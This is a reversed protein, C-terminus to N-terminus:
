EKSTKDSEKKYLDPYTERMILEKINKHDPNTLYTIASDTNTGLIVDDAYILTGGRKIVIGKGIADILLLRVSTTTGTYLDIIKEPYREAQTLLYDEIDSVAAHSMDKELLKCKTLWGDITDGFIYTQADHIKKKRDNKTKSIVGPHEIYLDAVGRRGSVLGEVTGSSVFPTEGDIIYNGKSDKAFRDPAIFSSYEIAEWTAKDKPNSLDFTQGHEVKIVKSAPILYGGNSLFTKDKESLIMQGSADEERVCDPWMGNPKRTPQIYYAQGPTKSYASKLIVINSKEM